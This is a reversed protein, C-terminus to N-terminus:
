RLSTRSQQSRNSRVSSPPGNVPLPPKSNYNKSSLSSSRHGTSSRGAVSGCSSSTSTSSSSTIIPEAYDPEESINDDESITTPPPAPSSAIPTCASANSGNSGLTTEVCDTPRIVLHDLINSNYYLRSILQVKEPENRILDPRDTLLLVAQGDPHDIPLAQSKYKRHRILVFLFIAFCLLLTAFIM